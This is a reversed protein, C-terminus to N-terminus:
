GVEEYSWIFGRYSKIENKCCKRISSATYGDEVASKVSKYKKILIKNKDYVYLTREKGHIDNEKIYNIDIIKRNDGKYKWIYGYASKSINNCNTIITKMNYKDPLTNKDYTGVLNANFDYQEVEYKESLLRCKLLFEDSLKFNDLEFLWIYGRSCNYNHRCCERIEAISDICLKDQIESFTSFKNILNGYLDYQLIPINFYSSNNMVFERIANKNNMMADDEYFWLYNGCHIAKHECCKIINSSNLGLTRDANSASRWIKVINGYIDVQVVKKPNRLKSAKDKMEDSWVSGESSNEGGTSLNYGCDRNASNYYDIWFIERENIIDQECKEIVFFYFNEEGYKNWANQLKRNHHIQTNLEYKHQIWRKHINHSQGIYIMGNIINRIGYIGSFRPKYKDRDKKYNSM